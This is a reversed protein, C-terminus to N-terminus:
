VLKQFQINEKSVVFGESIAGELYLITEIPFIPANFKFLVKCHFAKDIEVVRGITGALVHNMPKLLIVFDETKIFDLIYLNLVTDSNKARKLPKPKLQFFAILVMLSLLKQIQLVPISYLINTVKNHKKLQIFSKKNSNSLYRSNKLFNEINTFPPSALVNNSVKFTEITSYNGKSSEGVLNKNTKLNTSLVSNTQFAILYQDQNNINYAYTPRAAGILLILSIVLLEVLILLYRKQIKYLAYIKKKITYFGLFLPNRM